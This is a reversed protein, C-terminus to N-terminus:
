CIYICVNKVYMDTHRLPYCTHMMLLLDHTRIGDRIHKKKRSVFVNLNYLFKQFYPLRSLKQGFHLPRFYYKGSIQKIQFNLDFRYISDVNSSFHEKGKSFFDSINRILTLIINAINEIKKELTVFM